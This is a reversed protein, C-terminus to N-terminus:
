LHYRYIFKNKLFFFDATDNGEREAYQAEGWDYSQAEFFQASLLFPLCTFILILPYTKLM